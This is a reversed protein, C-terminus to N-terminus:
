RATPNSFFRGIGKCIKTDERRAKGARSEGLFSVLSAFAQELMVANPTVPSQSEPYNSFDESFLIDRGLYRQALTNNAERFKYYISQAESRAPMLPPGPFERALSIALKRRWERYERSTVQKGESQAIARNVILLLAQVEAPLTENQRPPRPLTAAEGFGAAHCFDTILDGDILEEASFLRVITNEKGFVTSWLDVLRLYNYQISNESINPFIITEPANGVKLETTFRSVALQDQRRLYVLISISSFYPSLLQRLRQIDTETTLRSQFHESSFVVTDCQQEASKLEADLAAIFDERWALRRSPSQIDLERTYDDHANADLCATVLNRHNGPGPSKPYAVRAARLAARNQHFFEQLSTSGTKETGIHVVAKM